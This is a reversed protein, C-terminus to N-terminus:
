GDNYITKALESIESGVLLTYGPSYINHYVRGFM